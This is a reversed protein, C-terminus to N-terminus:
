QCSIPLPFIKFQAPAIVNKYWNQNEKDNSYQSYHPNSFTQVDKENEKM